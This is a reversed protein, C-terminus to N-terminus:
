NYTSLSWTHGGDQSLARRVVDTNSNPLHATWIVVITPKNNNRVALNDNTIFVDFDDTPIETGDNLSLTEPTINWLYADIPSYTHTLISTQIITHNTKLDHARWVAVAITIRADGEVYKLLPTGVVNVESSHSINQVSWNNSSMVSGRVVHRNTESDLAKWIGGSVGKADCGIQVNTPKLYRQDDEAHGYFSSALIIFLIRGLQMM